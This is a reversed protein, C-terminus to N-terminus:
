AAKGQLGLNLAEQYQTVFEPGASNSQNWVDTGNVLAHLHEDPKLGRKELQQAIKQSHKQLSALCRQDAEALSLNAARNWSCFGRNTVHNGPDTHGSYLSTAKGEPTYNGEAVGVAISGPSKASDFVSAVSAAQGVRTGPFM